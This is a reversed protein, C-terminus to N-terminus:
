KIQMKRKAIVLTHEGQTQQIKKKKTKQKFINTIKSLLPSTLNPPVNRGAKPRTQFRM